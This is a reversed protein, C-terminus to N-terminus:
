TRARSANTRARRHPSDGSGDSSSPSFAWIMASAAEWDSAVPTGTRMVNHYPRPARDRGRGFIAGGGATGWVARSIPSWNAPWSRPMPLWSTLSGVALRLARERLEEMPVARGSLGLCAPM